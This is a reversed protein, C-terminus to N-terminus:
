LKEGAEEAEKKMKQYVEFAQKAKEDRKNM